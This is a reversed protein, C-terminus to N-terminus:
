LLILILRRKFSCINIHGSYLQMIRGHPVSSAYVAKEIKRPNHLGTPEMSRSFYFYHILTSLLKTKYPMFFPIAKSTSRSMEIKIRSSLASRHQEPHLVWPLSLIDNSEYRLVWAFTLIENGRTKRGSCSYCDHSQSNQSSDFSAWIVRTLARYRMVAVSILLFDDSIQWKIWDSYSALVFFTSLIETPFCQNSNHILVNVHNPNSLLLLFRFWVLHM